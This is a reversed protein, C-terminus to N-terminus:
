QKPPGKVFVYSVGLTPTLGAGINFTNTTQNQSETVVGSSNFHTIDNKVTTSVYSLINNLRFTFGWHIAPFYALGPAVSFNYGMTSVLPLAYVAPPNTSTNLFYNTHNGITIYANFSGTLYFNKALTIYKTTFLGVQFTSSLDHWSYYINNSAEELVPKSISSYGVDIGVVWSDTVFYGASIGLSVTTTKTEPVQTSDASSTLPTLNSTTSTSTSTYGVSGSVIISGKTLQAYSAYSFFPMAIFLFAKKM